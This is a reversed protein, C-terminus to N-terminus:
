VKYWGGTTKHLGAQQAAQDLIDMLDQGEFGFLSNLEELINEFTVRKSRYSINTFVSLAINELVHARAEQTLKWINPFARELVEMMDDFYYDHRYAYWNLFLENWDEKEIIDINYEIFEKVFQIM